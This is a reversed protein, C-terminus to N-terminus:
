RGCGHRDRMAEMQAHMRKRDEETIETYTKATEDIMLQRKSAADIIIVTARGKHEPMEARLQAGEFYITSLGTSESRLLHAESVVGSWSRSTAGSYVLPDLNIKFTAPKGILEEFDLAPNHCLVEVDVTFLTSLGDNVTFRRVELVDDIPVELHLNRNGLELPNEM